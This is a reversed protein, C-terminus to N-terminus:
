LELRMEFLRDGGRWLVIDRSEYIFSALRSGCNERVM